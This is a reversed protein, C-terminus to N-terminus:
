IAEQYSVFDRWGEGTFKGGCEHEIVACVDDTVDTWPESADPCCKGYITSAMFEAPLDSDEAYNGVIAIRDGAWRGITRRAIANYAANVPASGGMEATREPGYYNTDLDFDGGGRHERLAATLIILASGVHSRLQEGIKAGAGLRHPHVYEHKDLNVAKWYQGM